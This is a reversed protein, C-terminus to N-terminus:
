RPTRVPSGPIPLVLRAFSSERRACRTRCRSPPAPLDADLREPEVLAQDHVAGRVVDVPPVQLEVHRVRENRSAEEDVVRAIRRARADLELQARLRGHRGTRLVLALNRGRHGLAVDGVQAAERVVPLLGLHQDALDVPPDTAAHQEEGVGARLTETQRVAPGPEALERNMRPDQGRKVIDSRVKPTHSFALLHPPPEEGRVAKSLDVGAVGPDRVPVGALGAITPYLDISRTVAPYPGPRAGAGRILLPTRLVEPALQFDHSWPFLANDRYLLEGHDATFVILSQDALGRADIASVVSGFLEDLYAVNSIYLLEVVRALNRVDDDTLGLRKRTGPFDKQLALTFQYPALQRIREDPLGATLEATQEPFRARLEAIRNKCPYHTVTFNTVVLARYSPDRAVRDLIELLRPDDSSLPKGSLHAKPVGQTYNLRPSAMGQNAWFHVDWGAEAFAETITTM